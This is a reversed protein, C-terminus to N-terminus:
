AFRADRHRRAPARWPEKRPPPPAATPAKADEIGLAPAEPRLLPTIASIKVSLNARPISGISDEELQEMRSVGRYASALSELARECGATYADAERATVTAEGLLDVSTGAGGEWLRRLVPTAANPSEAVIFRQAMFRVGLPCRASWDVGSGSRAAKGLQLAALQTVRADAM